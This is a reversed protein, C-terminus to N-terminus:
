AATKKTLSNRSMREFFLSGILWLACGFFVVNGYMKGYIGETSFPESAAHLAESNPFVRAETFEHFSQVAVQFIFLLLFVSTIQFFKKMNILYGFQQWLVAVIAAAFVGLAIGTVLQPDQVQFLLLVMEMGERCVMFVTFLFVGWYPIKSKQTKQALEKEMDQKFHPGVKWMHIVLSAVLIVTIIAFIGEWFPQNAGQTKWLWFGLGASWLISGAVGWFVASLLHQQMTKRLYSFTIAVILFAEIGERLVIVFAQFM